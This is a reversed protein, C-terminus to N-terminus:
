KPNVEPEPVKIQPNAQQLHVAWRFFETSTVANKSAELVLIRAENKDIRASMEMKNMSTVNIVTAISEKIGSLIGFGAWFGAFMFLVIGIGVGTNTNIQFRSQPHHQHDQAGNM